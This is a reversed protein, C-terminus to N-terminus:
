GGYLLHESARASAENTGEELHKNPLEAFGISLAFPISHLAQLVIFGAVFKVVNDLLPSDQV